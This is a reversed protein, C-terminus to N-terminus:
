NKFAWAMLLIGIIVALGTFPLFYAYASGKIAIVLTGLFGLILIIIGLVGWFSSDKVM